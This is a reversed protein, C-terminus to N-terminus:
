LRQFFGANSVKAAHRKSNWSALVTMSGITPAARTYWPSLRVDSITAANIM